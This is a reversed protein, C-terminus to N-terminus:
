SITKVCAYNLSVFLMLFQLLLCAFPKQNKKSLISFLKFLKNLIDEFLFVPIMFIEHHFLSTIYGQYDTMHRMTATQSGPVTKKEKKKKQRGKEWCFSAHLTSHYNESKLTTEEANRNEGLQRQCTFTFTGERYKQKLPEWSQEASSGRKCM